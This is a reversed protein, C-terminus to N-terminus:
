VGSTPRSKTPRRGIHEFGVVRERIEGKLEARMSQRLQAHNDTSLERPERLAGIVRLEIDRGVDSPELNRPNDIRMDGPLHRLVVGPAGIAIFFQALHQPGLTGGDSALDDREFM